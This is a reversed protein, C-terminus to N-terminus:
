NSFKCSSVVGVPCQNNEEGARLGAAAMRHRRRNGVAKSTSPSWPGLITERHHRMANRRVLEDRGNKM